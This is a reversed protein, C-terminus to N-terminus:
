RPQHDTVQIELPVDFILQPSTPSVASCATVAVPRAGGSLKSVSAFRPSAPGRVGAGVGVGVSVGAGAGAGAGTSASQPPLVQKTVKVDTVSSRLELTIAESGSITTVLESHDKFMHIPKGNVAAIVDGAFV